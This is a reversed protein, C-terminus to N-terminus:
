ELSAAVQIANIEDANTIQTMNYASITSKLWITMTELGILQWNNLSNLWKMFKDSIDIIPPQLSGSPVIRM